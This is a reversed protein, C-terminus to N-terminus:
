DPAHMPTLRVRRLRGTVMTWLAKLRGKLSSHLPLDKGRLFTEAFQVADTAEPLADERQSMRRCPTPAATHSRAEWCCQCVLERRPPLPPGLLAAPESASRVELVHDCCVAAGCWRCFAVAQVERGQEICYYCVM